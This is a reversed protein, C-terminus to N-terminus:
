KTMTLTGGVEPPTSDPRSPKLAVILSDPLEDVTYDGDYNATGSIRVSQGVQFDSNDSIFAIVWGGGAQVQLINYDNQIGRMEILNKTRLPRFTTSDMVLSTVDLQYWGDGADTANDGVNQWAGGNVRYE